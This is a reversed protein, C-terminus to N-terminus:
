LGNARVTTNLAYASISWLGEPLSFFSPELTPKLQNSIQTTALYWVLIHYLNDAHRAVHNIKHLLYSLTTTSIRTDKM